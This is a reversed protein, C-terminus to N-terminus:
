PITNQILYKINYTNHLVLIYYINSIIDVYYLKNSTINNIIKM